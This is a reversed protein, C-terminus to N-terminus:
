PSGEWVAEYIAIKKEAMEPRMPLFYTPKKGGDKISAGLIWCVTGDLIVLRDHINGSKRVDIESSSSEQFKASIETVAVFNKSCLIRIDNSYNSSFLHSFTASDFYPDVIFVENEASNVAKVVDALFRYQEGPQYVEGLENDQLLELELKLDEIANRVEVQVSNMTPAWYRGATSLASNFKMSHLPSIRSMLAGVRALWLRVPGDPDSDFESGFSPRNDMESILKLLVIHRQVPGDTLFSM